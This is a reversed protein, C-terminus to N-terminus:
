SSWTTRLEASQGPRMWVTHPGKEMDHAMDHPALGWRCPHPRPTLDSTCQPVGSVLGVHHPLLAAADSSTPGWV